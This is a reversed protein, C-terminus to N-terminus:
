YCIPSNYDCGVCRTFNMGLSNNQSKQEEEKIPVPIPIEPPPPLNVHIPSPAIRRIYNKPIVGILKDPPFTQVQIWDNPCIKLWFLKQGVHLNLDADGTSM